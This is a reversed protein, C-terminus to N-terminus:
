KRPLRQHRSRLETLPPFSQLLLSDRGWLWLHCKATCCDPVPRRWLLGGVLLCVVAVEGLLSLCPPRTTQRLVCYHHRSPHGRHVRHLLLRISLEVELHLEGAFVRVGDGEGGLRDLREATLCGVRIWPLVQCDIKGSWLLSWAWHELSIHDKSMEKKHKIGQYRLIDLTSLMETQHLFSSNLKLDYLLCFKENWYFICVIKSITSIVQNDWGSRRTM